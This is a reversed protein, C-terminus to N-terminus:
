ELRGFYADTEDRLRRLSAGFNRQEIMAAVDQVPRRVVVDSDMVLIVQSDRALSARVRGVAVRDLLLLGALAYLRGAASDGDGISQFRSVADHQEFVVNFAQVQRKPPMTGFAFIQTRRLLAEADTLPLPYPFRGQSFDDSGPPKPVTTRGTLDPAPPPTPPHDGYSCSGVVVLALVAVSLPVRLPM